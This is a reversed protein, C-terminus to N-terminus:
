LEALNTNNSDNARYKEAQNFLMEYIEQKRRWVVVVVVVVVVLLVVM